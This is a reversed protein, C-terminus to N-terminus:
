EPRLAPIKRKPMPVCRVAGKDCQEVAISTVPSVNAINVLHETLNPDFIKLEDRDLMMNRVSRTRVVDGAVFVGRDHANIARAFVRRSPEAVAFGALNM